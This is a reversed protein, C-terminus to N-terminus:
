AATFRQDEAPAAKIAAVTIASVGTAAKINRKLLGSANSTRKSHPAAYAVVTAISFDELRQSM